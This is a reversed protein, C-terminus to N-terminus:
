YAFKEGKFYHNLIGFTLQEQTFRRDIRSLIGGSADGTVNRAGLIKALRIANDLDADEKITASYYSVCRIGARDFRALATHFLEDAPHNMLMFEGRSMEIERVRLADLQVIMQDLSLIHYSYTGIGVNLKTLAQLPAAMAALGAAVTTVFNRRTISTAPNM